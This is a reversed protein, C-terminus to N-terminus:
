LRWSELYAKIYGDMFPALQPHHPLGNKLRDLYARKWEKDLERLTPETADLYEDPVIDRWQNLSNSASTGQTAYMNLVAAVYLAKRQYAEPPFGDAQASRGIRNWRDNVDKASIPRGRQQDPPKRSQQESFLISRAARIQESVIADPPRPLLRDWKAWYNHERVSSVYAPTYGEIGAAGKGRIDNTSLFLLDPDDFPIPPCQRGRSNAAWRVDQTIWIPRNRWFTGSDLPKGWWSTKEALQQEVTWPSVPLQGLRELDARTLRENPRLGLETRTVPRIIQANTTPIEHSTCGNLITITACAIAIGIRNM